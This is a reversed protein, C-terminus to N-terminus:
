CMQHLLSLTCDWKRKKKSSALNEYTIVPSLACASSMGRVAVRPTHQQAALRSRLSPGYHSITGHSNDSSHPRCPPCMQPHPSILRFYSPFAALLLRTHINHHIKPQFCVSLLPTTCVCLLQYIIM